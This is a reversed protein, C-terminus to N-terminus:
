PALSASRELIALVHGVAIGLGFVALEILFILLAIAPSQTAVFRVWDSWTSSVPGPLDSARPASPSVDSSPGPSAIARPVSRDPEPRSAPRTAPPAGAEEDVLAQLAEAAEAATQYRDGLRRAM